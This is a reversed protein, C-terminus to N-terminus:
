YRLGKQKDVSKWRKHVWFWLEPYKKIMNELSTNLRQMIEVDTLGEHKPFFMKEVYLKHRGDKTRVHYMPVIPLGVKLAIRAVGMYVSADFGLFPMVEGSKRADQDIVLLIKRKGKIAKLIGRMAGKRYILDLGRDQRYDVFFKDFYPNRQKKAIASLELGKQILYYGMLEWNGYHGSSILFSDEYNLAEQLNEEGVVELHQVLKDKDAKFMEYIMLGFGQYMRKTIDNVELDSLNPFCRKIQFKALKKRIGIRYGFNVAVFNMFAKVQKDSFTEILFLGFKLLFKEISNKRAKSKGM